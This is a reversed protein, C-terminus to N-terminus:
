VGSVEIDISNPLAQYLVYRGKADEVPVIHKSVNGQKVQINKWGAPVYTKLTLPLDYMSKDLSHTLKVTIKKDSEKANVTSNKRERMYKTVDGFTAVWLKDDRGKIYQFYQDLDEQKMAEFGIGDV